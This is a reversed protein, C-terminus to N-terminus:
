KVSRLASKLFIGERNNKVETDRLADKEVISRALNAMRAGLAAFDRQSEREVTEIWEKPIASRGHMAGSIAGLMTAISDSDRGYNIAGLVGERFDGKTIKLMALAIPLEEIANLRSPKRADLDPERYSESM